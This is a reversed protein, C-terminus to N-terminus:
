KKSKKGKITITMTKGFDIKHVGGQADVMPSQSIIKIEFKHNGSDLKDIDVPSSFEGTVYGVVFKDSVTRGYFYTIVQNGQIHEELKDAATFQKKSLKLKSFDIKQALKKLDEIIQEQTKAPAQEDSSGASASTAPAAGSGTTSKKIEEIAAKLAALVEEETKGKGSSMKSVLDKMQEETLDSPVIAFFQTITKDVGKPGGDKGSFYDKYLQAVAPPASKLKQKNEESLSKDAQQADPETKPIGTDAGSKAGADPTKGKSGDAPTTSKDTKSDGQGGAVGGDAAPTQSTGADGVVGKGDGSAGTQGAKKAAAMAKLQEVTIEGQPLSGQVAENSTLIAELEEKTFQDTHEVLIKMMEQSLEQQLATADGGKKLAKKMKEKLEPDSEILEQIEKPVPKGSQSMSEFLQLIPDNGEFNIKAEAKGSALLIIAAAASAYAYGPAFKKVAGKKSNKLLAAALALATAAVLEKSADRLILYVLVGNANSVQLYLGSSMKYCPGPPSWTGRDFSLGGCDAVSTIANAQTIENGLKIIRELSGSVTTIEYMTTNTFDWIDPEGAVMGSKGTFNPGAKKTEGGRLCNLALNENATKGKIYLWDKQYSVTNNPHSEKYLDSICKEAERWFPDFAPIPITAIPCATQYCSRRLTNLNNTGRQQIVHTLEHALLRRGGETHPAFQGRNFYIDSGHTFAKAQIDRNMDAAQGDTHVRVQSFDRGFRSEMFGRTESPMAQGGGRTNSLQSAFAPSTEFGGGSEAKRMVPMKKKEEECHACKRQVSSALMGQTGQAKSSILPIRMVRDAVADAEQEYVDNPTNVLLKPQIISLNKM